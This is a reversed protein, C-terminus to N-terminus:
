YATKNVQGPATLKKMQGPAKQKKIQGPPVHLTSCSALFVTCLALLFVKRM